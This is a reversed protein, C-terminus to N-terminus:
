RTRILGALSFIIFAAINVLVVAAGAPLNLTYSIIMGIVFCIVSVVASFITVTKFSKFIRMATLPPMIILASILLAGMMRMGLVITIATLVATLMNCLNTNTGTARAFKEDFTIAFIRNYFLLFLILMVTCLTASLIADRSSVALISGFLYSNLDTNMGGASVVIIGLALAGSSILGIAADGKIKSNESIKLLAFAAIIVVPITIKLPSLGLAAAVALAGFGVHSLGDGIMSYRKLVLSVGLLSACLSVLVGTILANIMFTYTFVATLDNM